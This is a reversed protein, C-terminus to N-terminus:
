IVGGKAIGPGKSYFLLHLWAEKIFTEFQAAYNCKAAPNAKKGTLQCIRSM